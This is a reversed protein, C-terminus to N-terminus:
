KQLITAFQVGFRGVASYFALGNTAPMPHAYSALDHEEASPSGLITISAGMGDAGARAGAGSCLPNYGM